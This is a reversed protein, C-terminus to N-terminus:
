FVDGNEKLKKQEYPAALRRYLELKTCELEGIANRINKYRVVGDMEGLIIKTFVYNLEGARFAYKDFVKLMPALLADIAPRQNPKIYPM